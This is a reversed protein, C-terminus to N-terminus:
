EVIDFGWQQRISNLWDKVLVLEGGVKMQGEPIRAHEDEDWKPVYLFEHDKGCIKSELTGNRLKELCGSDFQVDICDKCAYFDDAFSWTHGCYGDCVQGLKGEKRRPVAPTSAAEQQSSSSQEQAGTTSMRDTTASTLPLTTVGNTNATSPTIADKKDSSSDGLAAGSNVRFGM